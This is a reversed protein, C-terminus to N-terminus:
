RPVEATARAIDARHQAGDFDIAAVGAHAADAADGLDDRVATVTLVRGGATHVVGDILRTGAHFVVRDDGGAADLGAIPVPDSSRVPYGASAMVVTVAARDAWTIDLDALTGAICADMVDVLDSTLLPLVVQTEPDGFRCNFEIVKPGDVTLMMGAYLVGRYPRGEDIMAQLTPAIVEKGIRELLAEDAIPSPHFAGMGGTNPGVDGEGVRKHDQAAPMVRFDAGDCFALISVEPGHLREELLVEDGASGFRGAVLIDRVAAAAEDRSEAVIVGKGAALGSAKVVPVDDLSALHALADDVDTFTAAAGTPIGHRVLFDKCHAKSGELQAAAASPGFAAIEREALRDVLGAVLPDEPGVVVLDIAEDVALAVLGDLDTASTAVNRCKAEVATGANGPAVLIEAVQPSRALTWALAHERGGGGVVLIRRGM